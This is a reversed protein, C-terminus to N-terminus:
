FLKSGIQSHKINFVILSSGNLTGNVFRRLRGSSSQCATNVTIVVGGTLSKKDTPKDSAGCIGGKGSRARVAIFRKRELSFHAMNIRLYATRQFQPYDLGLVQDRLRCMQPARKELFPTILECNKM